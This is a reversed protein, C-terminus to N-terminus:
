HLFITCCVGFTYFILRFLNMPSFAFSWSVCPYVTMRMILFPFHLSWCIMKRKISSLNKFVLHWGSLKRLSLPSHLHVYMCWRRQSGCLGGCPHAPAGHGRGCGGWAHVAMAMGGPPKGGGCLHRIPQYVGAKYFAVQFYMNFTKFANLIKLTDPMYKLFYVWTHCHPNHEFADVVINNRM